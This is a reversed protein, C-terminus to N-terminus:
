TPSPPSEASNDEYLDAHSRDVVSHTWSDTNFSKFEAVNRLFQEPTRVNQNLAAGDIFWVDGDKKPGYAQRLADISNGTITAIDNIYVEVRANMERIRDYVRKDEPYEFKFIKSFAKTYETTCPHLEDAIFNLMEFRHRQLKTNM